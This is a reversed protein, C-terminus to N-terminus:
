LVIQIQARVNVQEQTTSLYGQGGGSGPTGNPLWGLDLTFKANHGVFYKNVGVTVEHFLDEGDVEEDLSIISYRGFAEWNETNPLLYGAQAIGGVSNDLSAEGTDGDAITYIAAGYLGLGTPNEYQADVAFRYVDGDGGQAWDVGGGVVFLDNKTKLATFDSYADWDGFVKYEGRVAVGFNQYIDTGAQDTFTTNSTNDGDTFQLEGRFPNTESGYLLSVGQVYMTNGGGLIQNLLSREAALQRTDSVTEERTWNLKIQGFRVGWDDAFQYEGYAYDLFAEGSARDVSMRFNYKLDKSFANGKVGFKARRVEFGNQFNDDADDDVGGLDLSHAYNTVNRFQFEVYPQILYLGDQSGIKFGKDWGTVLKDSQPFQNRQAADTQVAGVAQQQKAAGDSQRQRAELDALRAKLSNIEATVDTQQASAITPVAVLAAAVAVSMWRYSM